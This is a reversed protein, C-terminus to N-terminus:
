ETFFTFGTFTGVIRLIAFATALLIIGIIAYIIKNRAAAVKEKEGGSTMWEFAAWLFMFLAVIAAITYFLTVLNSLFQSIGISGYGFNQIAPPPIIQGFVKSIDSQSAPDPKNCALPAKSCNQESYREECYDEGTDYCYSVFYRCGASGVCELVDSYQGPGVGSGDRNRLANCDRGTFGGNGSISHPGRVGAVCAASATSIGLLPILLLTTSILISYVIIKLM